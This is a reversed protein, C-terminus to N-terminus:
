PTGKGQGRRSLVLALAISALKSRSSDGRSTLILPGKGGIIAGATVAGSAVTLTKYIANGVDINPVLLLDADGQIRGKYGKEHAAGPSLALDVSLPGEIILDRRDKFREAIVRAEMSSTVAESPKETASIVAVRPERIGLLRLAALANDLIDVRADIDPSTNMAADTVALLKGRGPVDFLSLHSLRPGRGTLGKRKLGGLYAKLLTATMVSGKMLIDAAGAEHLAAARAAPDMADVVFYNEEDIPVDLEWALECVRAYPGVLLFRALRYSGEMNALKAALLAEENDAGAIVIFPPDGTPRADAIIDDMKRPPSGERRRLLPREFVTTELLADEDTRRAELRDREATYSLCSAPDACARLLGAVLAAAEVSGPLRAVPVDLHIRQAVMACFRESRALGGTLVIADLPREDASLELLCGAVRNAYMQTVLDVKRAQAPTAGGDRFAFFAQFDDTGALALLGGGSSVVERKLDELSYERSEMRRILEHLPLRGSRNASPLDGFAHAAQVMRGDKFRGASMGGGMHCIALHLSKLDRGLVRATIEAVAHMNLHHALAGRSRVRPSGTMRHVLETEDVTGPDTVTVVLDEKALEKLALAIPVSMNSAHPYPARALDEIMAPVVQYTGGPVPAVLGGRSAIGTVDSVDLRREKLWALIRRVRQAVGKETGPEAHLEDGTVLTLGNYVAVKTSTSGPNIVLSSWRMRRVLDSLEAGLLLALVPDEAGPRVRRVLDALSTDLREPNESM